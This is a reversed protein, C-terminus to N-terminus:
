ASRRRFSQSSTQEQSRKRGIMCVIFCGVLFVFALGEINTRVFISVILVSAAVLMGLLGLLTMLEPDTEPRTIPAAQIKDLLKRANLNNPNTKVADEAVDLASFKDHLDLYVDALKARYFISHPSYELAKKLTAVVGLLSERSATPKYQSLAQCCLVEGAMDDLSDLDTVDGKKREVPLRASPDKRRAQEVYKAAYSLAGDTAKKDYWDDIRAPM